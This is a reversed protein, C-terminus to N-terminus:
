KGVVRLMMMTKQIRGSKVGAPGFSSMRNLLLNLNTQQNKKIGKYRKLVLGNLNKSIGDSKLTTMSEDALVLSLSAPIRAVVAAAVPDLLSVFAPGGSAQCVDLYNPM